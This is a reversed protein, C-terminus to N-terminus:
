DDSPRPLAGVRYAFALAEELWALRQSPTAALSAELSRDEAARFDAQWEAAAGSDQPRPSDPLDTAVVDGQSPKWNRSTSCTQESMGILDSLSAIRIERGGLVVTEARSWLDTFPIPEVAFLDVTLLPNRPDRLTFVQLNRTEIWERRKAADAFDHANVPLLPRLGRATLADIARRVNEPELDVVLDIDVTLRAHGHIVVAVGGVVVFRVGATDLYALLEEFM